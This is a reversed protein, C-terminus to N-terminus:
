ECTFGQSVYNDRLTNLNRSLNLNNLDNDSITDYDIVYTVKYNNDTDVTNQVSFGNINRYTNQVTTHRDRVGAIDLIADAVNNVIDDIANGIIGDVIGDQDNQTDNTTGDTGTGIGDSQRTTDNNDNGNRDNTTDTDTGVGNTNDTNNGVNNQNYDYTIRVKKVDNNQYDIDYRMMTSLNNATTEYTCSLTENSNEGCGTLALISIFSLVLIKKM